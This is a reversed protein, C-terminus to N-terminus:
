WLPDNPRIPQDVKRDPPSGENKEWQADSKPLPAHLKSGGGM